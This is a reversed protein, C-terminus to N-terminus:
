QRLGERQPVGDVLRGRGRARRRGAVGRTERARTGTRARGTIGGDDLLCTSTASAAMASAEPSASPLKRFTTAARTGRFREITLGGDAQMLQALSSAHYSLMGSTDHSTSRPRQRLQLVVM